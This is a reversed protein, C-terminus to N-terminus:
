LRCLRDCGRERLRRLNDRLRLADHRRTECLEGRVDLLRFGHEAAGVFLDDVSNRVHRGFVALGCRAIDDLCALHAVATLGREIECRRPM